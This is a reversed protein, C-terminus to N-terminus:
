RRNLMSSPSPHGFKAQYVVNHLKDVANILAQKFEDYGKLDCDVKEWKSLTMYMDIITSMSHCTFNEDLAEQVSESIIHKLRDEPNMINNTNM